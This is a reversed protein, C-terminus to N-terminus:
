ISRVSQDIDRVKSDKVGDHSDVESVPSGSSRPDFVRLKKDKAQTALRSGDWSWAVGQVQEGHEQTSWVQEGGVCDWLTVGSGSSSTLLCDATPHWTVTEVRRSQEPLELVPSTLDSTLGGSPLRWLKITQDQSGTVLLGDDFPSFSFDTVIDSHGVIKRM